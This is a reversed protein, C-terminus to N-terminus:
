YVHIILENIVFFFVDNLTICKCFFIQFFFQFKNSGNDQFRIRPDPDLDADVHLPDSVSNGAPCNHM